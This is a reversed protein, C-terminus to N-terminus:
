GEGGTFAAPPADAYCAYYGAFSAVAERASEAQDHGFAAGARATVADAGGCAHPAISHWCWLAARFAFAHPEWESGNGLSDILDRQARLNSVATQAAQLAQRVERGAQELQQYGPDGELGDLGGHDRRYDAMYSNIERQRHLRHGSIQRLDDLALQLATNNAEARAHQDELYLGAAEAAAASEGACQLISAELASLTTTPAPPETTAPATDATAPIDVGESSCASAILAAAVASAFTRTITM